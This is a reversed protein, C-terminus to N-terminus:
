KNAAMVNTYSKQGDERLTGPYDSTPTAVGNFDNPLVLSYIENRLEGPLDLFCTGGDSKTVGSNALMISSAEDHKTVTSADHPSITSSTAPAAM